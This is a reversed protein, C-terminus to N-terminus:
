CTLTQIHSILGCPSCQQLFYFLFFLVAKERPSLDKHLGFFFFFISHHKWQIHQLNIIGMVDFSPFGLQLGVLCQCECPREDERAIFCESTGFERQGPWM